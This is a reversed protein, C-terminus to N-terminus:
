FICFVRKNQFVTNLFYTDLTYGLCILRTNIHFLHINIFFSFPNKEQLKSTKVLFNLIYEWQSSPHKYLQKHYKFISPVIKWMGVIFKLKKENKCMGTCIGMAVKFTDIWTCNGLYNLDLNFAGVKYKNILLSGQFLLELQHPFLLSCYKTMVRSSAKFRKM